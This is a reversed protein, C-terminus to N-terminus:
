SNVRGEFREQEDSTARIGARTSCLGVAIWISSLSFLASIIPVRLPYDVVSGIATMLIIVLGIWGMGRTAGAPLNWARRLAVLFAFVAVTLLAIGPVGATLAVELWDNHAHNSYTPHLISDPEFTQFVREYGGIGTGAPMFRPLADAIIPWLTYRPEDRNSSELVRQISEASGAFLAWAIIGGAAILAVAGIALQARQVTRWGDRRCTLMSILMFSVLGIAGAILGARSGLIVLFAIVVMVGTFSVFGTMKGTRSRRDRTALIFGLLPLMTALFLAQHNRNAFLGVPSGFNSLRYLYNAPDGGGAIQLLGLGATLAGGLLMVIVVIRHEASSLRIANTFIALPIALAFLANWTFEPAMSIPRWTGSLGVVADVEMIIERGPLATWLFPPLPILHAIILAVIAAAMAFLFRHAAIDQRTLSWLGYFLSLIAIPRLIPLSWVDARSSGGMFFVLVLLGAVNVL